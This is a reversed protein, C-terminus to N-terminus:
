DAGTNVTHCISAMQGRPPCRSDGPDIPIPEITCPHDLSSRTIVDADFM